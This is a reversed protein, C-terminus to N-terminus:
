SLNVSVRIVWNYNFGEYKSQVAAVEHQLEYTLSNKVREAAAKITNPDVIQDFLGDRSVRDYRLRVNVKIIHNIKDIINNSSTWRVYGMFVKTSSYSIRASNLAKNVARELASPDKILPKPESDSGDNCGGSSSPKLASYYPAPKGFDFEFNFFLSTFSECYFYDVDIKDTYAGIIAFICTIIQLPFRFPTLVFNVFWSFCFWDIDRIKSDIINFLFMLGLYIATLIIILLFDLLSYSPETQLLEIQIKMFIIYLITIGSPLLSLILMGFHKM